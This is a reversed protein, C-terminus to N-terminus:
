TGFGRCPCVQRIRIITPPMPFQCGNNVGDHQAEGHGCNICLLKTEQPEDTYGQSNVICDACLTTGIYMTGEIVGDQRDFIATVVTKNQGCAVCTGKDIVTLGDDFHYERFEPDSEPFIRIENLAM